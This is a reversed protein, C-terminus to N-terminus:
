KKAKIRKKQLKKELERLRPWDDPHVWVDGRKLGQAKKRDREAQKREAPSLPIKQNKESM